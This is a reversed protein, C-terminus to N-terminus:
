NYCWSRAPLPLLSIFWFYINVVLNLKAINCCSTFFLWDNFKVTIWFFLVRKTVAIVKDVISWKEYYKVFVVNVITLVGLMSQAVANGQLKYTKIVIKYTQVHRSSNVCLL